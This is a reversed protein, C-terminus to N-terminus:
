IFLSYIFNKTDISFGETIKELNTNDLKYNRKILWKLIKTKEIANSYEILLCITDNKLENRELLKHKFGIKLLYELKEKYFENSIIYNKDKINQFINILTNLKILNELDISNIIENIISHNIDHDANIIINYIYIIINYKDHYIAENIKEYRFNYLYEKYHNIVHFYEYLIAKKIISLIIYDNAYDFLVREIDTEDYINFMIDVMENNKSLTSYYDTHDGLISIFDNNNKELCYRIVVNNKKNLCHKIIIKLIDFNDIYTEIMNIMFSTTQPIYNIIDSNIFLNWVHRDIVNGITKNFLIINEEVGYFVKYLDDDKTVECNGYKVKYKNNKMLQICNKVDNYNNYAYIINRVDYPVREMFNSVYKNYYYM